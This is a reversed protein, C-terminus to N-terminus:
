LNEEPPSGGDLHKWSCEFRRSYGCRDMSRRPGSRRLRNRDTRPPLLPSPLILAM